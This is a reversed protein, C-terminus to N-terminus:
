QLRRWHMIATVGASCKIHTNSGNQAAHNLIVHGQGEEGIPYCGIAEAPFTMGSLQGATSHAGFGVTGGAGPTVLVTYGLIQVISKPAVTTVLISSTNTTTSGGQYDTPFAEDGDIGLTWACGDSDFM